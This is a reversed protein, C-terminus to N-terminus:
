RLAAMASDNGQASSKDFRQILARIQPYIQTRWRSGSFIGYHGCKAVTMRFRRSSEIATCLDHAAHTQGQGCIDDNEGEVTILVTDRIAEPRVREGDVMWTGRALAFDQFVVRVTELYYEAAMDLVANYEDYFTRHKNAAETDGASVDHFYEVHAKLHRDPNMSVFATHQRFGPYVKRGAGAHPRPVTNILTRAFWDLPKSVALDNVVTPSQRADVPGGMLTVSAPTCRRKAASLAIAGLAPVTSQCVAVVHVEPGLFEIFEQVYAVYDDLHFTGRALPVHRADLWDTIHVDFDPLMTQVTDRLLTAHHGSLPAVVLVVPHRCETAREFRVLRCFARELVIRERVAIHQGAIETHTLGFQPKDYHKILRVLLDCGAAFQRCPAAHHIGDIKALLDATAQLWPLVPAWMTSQWERWAYLM